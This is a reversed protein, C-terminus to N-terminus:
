YLKLSLHGNNRIEWVFRGRAGADDHGYNDFKVGAGSGLAIHNESIVGYDEITSEYGVKMQQVDDLYFSLAVASLEAYTEPSLVDDYISMGSGTEHLFKDAYKRAWEVNLEWIYDTYETSQEDDTTVYLGRYQLNTNTTSFDTGNLDSAYAYYTKETLLSLESVSEADAKSDLTTQLDTIKGITLNGDINAANVHITNANLRNSDITGTTIHGGDIVTTTDDLVPTTCSCVGRGDSFQSVTQTQRATYLNPYLRNYVPRVTTWIPEDESDMPAINTVWTQNIEPVTSGSEQMLYIIQTRYVADSSNAKNNVAISVEDLASETAYGNIHASSAYLNGAKDVGFKNGAIIRWDSKNGSNNITLAHNIADDHSYVYIYDTTNKTGAEIGGRLLKLGESTLTADLRNGTIIGNTIIPSYLKIGNFSNSLQGLEMLSINNYKFNLSSTNIWSNFGYTSSDNENVDNNGIGGAMHTGASDTWIKKIKTQLNILNTNIQNVAKDLYPTGYEPSVIGEKVTVERIWIQYGSVWTPYTTSWGVEGTGNFAYSNTVTANALALGYQLYVDIIDTIDTVTITGHSIQSM